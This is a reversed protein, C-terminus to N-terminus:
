HPGDWCIPPQVARIAYNTNDNLQRNVTPGTKSDPLPPVPILTM